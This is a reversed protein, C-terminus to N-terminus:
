AGVGAAPRDDPWSPDFSLAADSDAVSEEGLQAVARALDAFYAAAEPTDISAPDVGALAALAALAPSTRDSM